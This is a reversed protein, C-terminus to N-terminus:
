RSTIVATDEDIQGRFLIGFTNFFIKTRSVPKNGTDEPFKFVPLDNLLAHVGLHCSALHDAIHSGDVGPLGLLNLAKVSVSIGKVRVSGRLLFVTEYASDM